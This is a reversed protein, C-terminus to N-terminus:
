QDIRALELLGRLQKERGRMSAADRDLEGQIAAYDWDFIEGGNGCAPHVERWHRGEWYDDVFNTPLGPVPMMPEYTETTGSFGSTGDPDTSGSTGDPANQWYTRWSAGGGNELVIETTRANLRLTARAAVESFVWRAVRMARIDVVKWLCYTRCTARLWWLARTNGVRVRVGPTLWICDYDIGAFVFPKWLMEARACELLFPLLERRPEGWRDILRMLYMIEASAGVLSRTLAVGQERIRILEALDRERESIMERISERADYRKSVTASSSKVLDARTCALRDRRVREIVTAFTDFFWQTERKKRMKDYERGVEESVEKEGIGDAITAALKWTDFTPESLGLHEDREISIRAPDDDIEKDDDRDMM